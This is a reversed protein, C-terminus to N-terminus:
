WSNSAVGPNALEHLKFPCLILSLAYSYNNTWNYRAINRVAVEWTDYMVLSVRSPNMRKLEKVLRGLERLKTSIHQTQENGLKEHLRIGFQTILEDLKCIPSVDDLVMM